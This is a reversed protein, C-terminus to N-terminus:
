NMFNTFGIFIALVYFFAAILAVLLLTDHGGRYYLLLAAVLIFLMTLSFVTLTTNKFVFQLGSSSCGIVAMCVMLERLSFQMEQLEVPETETATNDDFPNEEGSM